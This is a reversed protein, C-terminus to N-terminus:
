VSLLNSSLGVVKKEAPHSYVTIFLCGNQTVPLGHLFTSFSACCFFWFVDLLVGAANRKRDDGSEVAPPRACQCDTTWSPIGWEQLVQESSFCSRVDRVVFESTHAICGGALSTATGV